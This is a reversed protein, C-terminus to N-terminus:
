KYEDTRGKEDAMNQAHVMAIYKQVIQEDSSGTFGLARLEEIFQENWDTELRARGGNVITWRMDFFAEEKNKNEDKLPRVKRSNRHQQEEAEEEVPINFIKKLWNM